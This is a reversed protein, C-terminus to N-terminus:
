RNKGSADAALKLAADLAQDAAVPVDPAVGVGEWNTKTVPNIFRGFPVRMFFHDDIRHPRISHAGGGTTEGILTARKLVKLDYSFQEGASFTRASTLIFIPKGTLKKGPLHPVTWWQETTNRARDYSDDLHTRQDFLYSSILAAMEPAGGYNVRLDFILADSDALFNMAAIATPACYEPWDFRKIRLYGINPPYHDATEIGCNRAALLQPDIHPRAPAENPDAETFFDVGLHKDGSMAVLDDSLRIAFTEADTINRYAGRKRETRLKASIKEAVDPFVYFQDLLKVAGDMVRNRQAEDVTMRASSEGPSELALLTIHAPDYSRVILRGVTEASSAREQARFVIWFGDSESIQLLDYGGTRERSQMEDDIELWPAHVKQFAEYIARDGSNFAELWASLARGAPTDPIRPASPNAYAHSALALLLSAVLLRCLRPWM